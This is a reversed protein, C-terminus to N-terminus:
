VASEECEKIKTKKHFGTGIPYIGNYKVWPGEGNGPFLDGPYYFYYYDPVLLGDKPARTTDQFLRAQAYLCRIWSMDGPGPGARPDTTGRFLYLLSLPYSVITSNDLVLSYTVRLRRIRM